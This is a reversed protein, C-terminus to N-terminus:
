RIPLVLHQPDATAANNQASEAMGLARMALAAINYSAKEVNAAGGIGPRYCLGIFSAMMLDVFADIEDNPAGPRALAALRRIGERYFGILAGMREAVSPNRCSEALLEFFLGEEPDRLLMEAIAKIAGFISLEGREVVDFIANNQATRAEAIAEAIAIVIDDKAEFHRYIQGISVAAEAALEATTTAHFGKSDFLKRAANIIRERPPRTKEPTNPVRSIRM